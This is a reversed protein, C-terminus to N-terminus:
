PKANRARLIKKYSNYASLTLDKEVVFGLQANLHTIVEEYSISTGNEPSSYKRVMEKQKRTIQTIISESKRLGNALSTAYAIAGSDNIVYGKKKLDAISVNDVQFHLKLLLCRVLNFESILYNLANYDDAQHIYTLDGNVRSNELLLTTWNVSLKDDLKGQKLLM